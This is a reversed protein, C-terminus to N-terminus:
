PIVTRILERSLPRPYGGDGGILREARLEPAPLGAADFPGGPDIDRVDGIRFSVNRVGLAAAREMARTAATAEREVGIVAGEDGVLRAALLTVDDFGSGVDLVRM